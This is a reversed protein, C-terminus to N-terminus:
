CSLDVIQGTIFRHNIVPWSPEFRINTDKNIFLKRIRVLIQKRKQSISFDTLIRKKLKSTKCDKVRAVFSGEADIFGSLWGHNFSPEPKNDIYIINQNYQSNFVKLWKFFQDKRYKSVLNRNFLSIIKFFDNQSTIYYVGVLRDEQKRILVKGFGLNSM